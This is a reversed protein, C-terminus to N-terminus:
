HVKSDKSLLYKLYLTADQGRLNEDRVGDIILLNLVVRGASVGRSLIL